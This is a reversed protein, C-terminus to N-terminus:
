QKYFVIPIDRKFYIAKRLEEPRILSVQTTFYAVVAFYVDYRIWSETNFGTM